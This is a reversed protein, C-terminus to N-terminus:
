SRKFDWKTQPGTLIEKEKHTVDLKKRMEEVNKLNSNLNKSLRFKKLKNGKVDM